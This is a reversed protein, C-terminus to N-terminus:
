EADRMGVARALTLTLETVRLYHGPPENGRLELAKSWGEITADYALSLEFNTNQLDNFLQTNEIAIAAQTSFNQVLEMWQTEPHFVSRHHIELVGKLDGKAILPVGTYTVFNEAKWLASLERNSQVESLDRFQTIRRELAV